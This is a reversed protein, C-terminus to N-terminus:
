LKRGSAVPTVTGADLTARKAGRRSCTADRRLTARESPLSEGARPAAAAARRGEEFPPAPATDTRGGLIM